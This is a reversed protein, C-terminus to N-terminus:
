QTECSDLTQVPFSTADKQVRSSSKSRETLEAATQVLRSPAYCRLEVWILARLTRLAVSTISTVCRGCGGVLCAVM